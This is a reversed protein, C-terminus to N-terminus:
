RRGLARRQSDLTDSGCPIGRDQLEKGLRQLAEATSLITEPPVGDPWLERVVPEYKDVRPRRRPKKSRPKKSGPLLALVDARPVRRLHVDYLPPINKGRATRSEPDLELGSVASPPIREFEAIPSGPRAWLEFGDRELDLATQAEKYRALRRKVDPPLSLLTIKHRDDLDRAAARWASVFDDWASPAIRKCAIDIPLGEAPWPDVSRPPKAKAM